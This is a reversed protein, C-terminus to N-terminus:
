KKIKSPEKQMEPSFDGPAGTYNKGQYIGEKPSSYYNKMATGLTARIPGQPPPPPPPPPPTGPQPPPGIYFTDTEDVDEFHM